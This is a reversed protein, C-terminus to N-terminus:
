RWTDTRLAPGHTSASRSPKRALGVSYIFKMSLYALARSCLADPVNRKGHRTSAPTVPPVATEDYPTYLIGLGLRHRHPDKHSTRRSRDSPLQHRTQNGGTVVNM